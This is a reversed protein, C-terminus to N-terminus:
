KNLNEKIINFYEKNKEIMLYNRDLEKSVIGTTGTGGFIDLVLDGKFTYYRILNEILKKPFVATHIKHSTPSINWVNSREIKGEIKSSEIIEKSYCNQYWEPLRYTKKRYIMLSETVTNPKYMLPKRTRNFMAVRNKVSGEPKNWVIDDEYEWGLNVLISHLDYPIPYRKSQYKRDLRPEIVPSSNVILYRGDKTVRHVERFIEEMKSLYDEYSKYTVYERANYYPPSTVTLHVLNDPFTKLVEESDGLFIENKYAENVYIHESKTEKDINDHLKFEKEIVYRTMENKISPYKDLIIERIEEERKYKLLKMIIDQVEMETVDTSYLKLILKIKEM